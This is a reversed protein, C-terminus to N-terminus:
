ATRRALLLVRGTPPDGPIPTLGEVHLDAARCADYIENPSFVHQRMRVQLQPQGDLRLTADCYARLRRPEYRFLMQCEGGEVDVTATRNWSNAYGEALVLDAMFLGQPVLHRRVNQLTRTLHRVGRAHNLSNFCCIVADFQEGLSFEAMEGLVYRAAPAHTRAFALMGPSLDVGTVRYGATLLVADFQGTGCCLDLIHAGAPLEPQVTAAFRERATELYVTGWDQNYLTALADYFQQEHSEV